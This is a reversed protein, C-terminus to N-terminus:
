LQSSPIRRYQMSSTHVPHTPPTLLTVPVPPRAQETKKNVAKKAVVLRIGQEQPHQLSPLDSVRVSSSIHFALPTPSPRRHCSVQAAEKKVAAAPQRKAAPQKKAAPKKKLAPEKIAM